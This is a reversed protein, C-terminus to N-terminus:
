LDLVLQTGHARSCCPTFCALRAEETLCHDRHDPEGALVGTVCTGCLGQGCSTPIAVGAGHLAALASQGAPVRVVQGTSAIVVDFPAQAGGAQTGPPASFRETHV